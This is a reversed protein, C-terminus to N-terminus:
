AEDSLREAPTEPDYQDTPDKKIEDMGQTPVDLSRPSEAGDIVSQQPDDVEAVLENPLVGLMEALRGLTSLEIETSEGALLSQAVESTVGTQAALTEADLGNGATLQDLRLAVKM